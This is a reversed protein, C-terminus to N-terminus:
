GDSVESPAPRLTPRDAGTAGLGCQTHWWEEEVKVGDKDQAGHWWIVQGATYPRGCGLCNEKVEMDM